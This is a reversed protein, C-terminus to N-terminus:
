TTLSAYYTRKGSLWRVPGCVMKHLHANENKRDFGKTLMKGKRM